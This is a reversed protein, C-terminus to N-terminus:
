GGALLNVLIIPAVQILLAGLLSGIGSITISSSPTQKLAKYLEFSERIMDLQEPDFKAKEQYTREMRELLDNLSGQRQSRVISSLHFNSFVFIFLAAGFGLIWWAILISNVPIARSHRLFFVYTAIAFALVLLAGAILMCTVLRSLSKIVPSESPDFFHVKLPHNSLEKIYTPARIGWYAAQGGMFFVAAFSVYLSLDLDFDPYTRDFIWLIIISILSSAGSLLMQLRLNLARKLWKTMARLGAEDKTERVAIQAVEPVLISYYTKVGVIVITTFLSLLTLRLGLVANFNGRAWATAVCIGSLMLFILTVTPIFPLIHNPSLLGFLDSVRDFILCGLVESQGHDAVREIEHSRGSDSASSNDSEM